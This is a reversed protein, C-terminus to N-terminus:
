FNKFSRERKLWLVRKGAVQEVRLVDGSREDQEVAERGDGHWHLMFPDPLHEQGQRDTRGDEAWKGERPLDEVVGVCDM